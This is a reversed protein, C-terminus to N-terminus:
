VERNSKALAADEAVKQVWPIYARDEKLTHQTVWEHLFNLAPLNMVSQNREMGAMMTNVKKTLARHSRCHEKLKPYGSEAMLREETGFHEQTLQVLRVLKEATLSNTEGRLVSSHLDNLLEFLVRHDRDISEVGVAFEESWQMSYM